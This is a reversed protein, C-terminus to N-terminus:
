EKPEPDPRGTALDHGENPSESGSSLKRDGHPNDSEVVSDSQADSTAESLPQRSGPRGSSLKRSENRSDEHHKSGDYEPIERPELLPGYGDPLHKQLRIRTERDVLDALAALVAQAHEVQFGTTQDHEIDVRRYFEDVEYSEDPKRVRIAEALEDPLAEALTKQDPETLLEGFVELTKHAARRAVEEDDGAHRQVALIFQEDNM